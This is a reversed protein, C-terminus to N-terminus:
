VAIVAATAASTATANAYAEEVATVTATLAAGIDGTVPVYTNATAGAIAVGAKKWQYLYSDPTVSGWTGNSVTLTQGVQATGTIAPLVSNAFTPLAVALQGTAQNVERVSTLYDLWLPETLVGDISGDYKGIGRLYRQVGEATDANFDGSISGSYAGRFNLHTQIAKVFKTSMTNDIPGTYRSIRGLSKQLKNLSKTSPAVPM